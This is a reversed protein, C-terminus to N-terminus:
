CLLASTLTNEAEWTGTRHVLWTTPLAARCLRRSASAAGEGAPGLPTHRAVPLAPHGGLPAWDARAGKGRSGTGQLGWLAPVPLVRQQTSWLLRRLAAYSSRESSQLGWWLTVPPMFHRTSCM